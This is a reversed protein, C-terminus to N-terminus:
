WECRVVPVYQLATGCTGVHRYQPHKSCISAAGGECTLTGPFGDSGAQYLCTTGLHAVNPISIGSTPANPFSPTTTTRQDQFLEPGVRDPATCPISAPSGPSTSYFLFGPSGIGDVNNSSFLAADLGLTAASSRSYVSIAWTGGCAAGVRSGCPANCLGRNLFM